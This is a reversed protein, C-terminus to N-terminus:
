LRMQFSNSMKKKRKIIEKKLAKQLEKESEVTAILGEVGVEPPQYLLSNRPNVEVKKLSLPLLAPTGQEKQIKISKRNQMDM